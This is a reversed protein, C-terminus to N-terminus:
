QPLPQSLLTQRVASWPTMSLIDGEPEPRCGEDSAGRMVRDVPGLWEIRPRGLLRGYLIVEALPLLGEPDCPSISGPTLGSLTSAAEAYAAEYWRRLTGKRSSFRRGDWSYAGPVVVRRSLSSGCALYTCTQLLAGGLEGMPDLAGDGDLDGDLSTVLTPLKLEHWDGEAPLMLHQEPDCGFHCPRTIEIWLAQPQGPVTCRWSSQVSGGTWPHRQGRAGLLLLSEATYDQESAQRSDWMVEGASASSARVVAGRTAAYAELNGSEHRIAQDLSTTWGLEGPGAVPVCPSPEADGMGPTPQNPFWQALQEPTSQFSPVKVQWAASLARRESADLSGQYRRVLLELRQRPVGLLRGRLVLAALPADEAVPLLVEELRPAELVPGVLNAFAAEATARLAPHVVSFGKGDWRAPASVRLWRWPGELDPDCGEGCRERHELLLQEPELRGDGDVDSWEARPRWPSPAANPRWGSPQWQFVSRVKTNDDMVLLWPSQVGSPCWAEFSDVPGLAREQVGGNVTPLLLVGGEASPPTCRWVPGPLAETWCTWGKARRASLRRQVSPSVGEAEQQQPQNRAPNCAAAPDAPSAAQASRGLVTVAFLVGVWRAHTM